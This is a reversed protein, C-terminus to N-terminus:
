KLVLAPITAMDPTTPLGCKEDLAITSVGAASRFDYPVAIMMEQIADAVFLSDFAHDTASEVDVDHSDYRGGLTRRRAALRDVQRQLLLSM